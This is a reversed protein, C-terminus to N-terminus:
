RGTRIPGFHVPPGTLTAWGLDLVPWITVVVTKGEGLIVSKGGGERAHDIPRCKSIRDRAAMSPDALPGPATAVEFWSVWAPGNWTWRVQAKPLAEQTVKPPTSSPTVKIAAWLQKRLLRLVAERTTTDLKAGYQKLNELDGTSLILGSAKSARELKRRLDELWDSIRTFEEIQPRIAAVPPYQSFNPIDPPSYAARIGALDQGRFAKDLAEWARIRALALKIRDALSSVDVSGKLEARHAQWITLLKKDQEHANSPGKLAQDLEQLAKRRRVALECRARETTDLLSAHKPYDRQVKDWETAIAVDSSTPDRLMKQLADVIEGALQALAVRNRLDYTYNAPLPAAAAVLTAVSGTGQEAKQVAEAVKALVTLRARAATVRPPYAKAEPWGGLLPEDWLKDLQRDDQETPPAPPAPVKQLERLRAVRAVAKKGREKHTATLSSHPQGTTVVKTWAAALTAETPSPSDFVRLFEDAAQIPGRWAEAQVGCTQALPCDALEVKTRDWTAVLARGDTTTRAASELETLLKGRRVAREAQKVLGEHKPWDTYITEDFVAAM